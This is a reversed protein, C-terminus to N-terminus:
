LDKRRLIQSLKALALVSENKFITFDLFLSTLPGVSVLSYTM